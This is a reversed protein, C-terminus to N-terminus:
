KARVTGSGSVIKNLQTSIPDDQRAVPKGGKGGLNVDGNLTVAGGEIDISAGGVSLTIAQDEFLGTAGGVKLEVKDASVFVTPQGAVTVTLSGGEPLAVIRTKAEEDWRDSYGGETEILSLGERTESPKFADSPVGMLILGMAPDGCPSLILVQENQDPASSSRTLGARLEIWPRPALRWGEEIEVVALRAAHDIEVVTGIMIANNQRRNAESRQYTDTM